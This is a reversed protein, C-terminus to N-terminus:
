SRVTRKDRRERHRVRPDLADGAVFMQTKCSELYPFFDLIPRPGQGVAGPADPGVLAGTEDWGIQGRRPRRPGPRHQWQTAARAPWGLVRIQESSM